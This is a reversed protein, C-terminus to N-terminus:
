SGLILGDLCFRVAVALVLQNHGACGRGVQKYPPRWPRLRLIVEGRPLSM